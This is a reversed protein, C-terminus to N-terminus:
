PSPYKACFKLVFQLSMVSYCVTEFDGSRLYAVLIPAIDYKPVRRGCAVMEKSFKGQGMLVPTNEECQLLSLLACVLDV